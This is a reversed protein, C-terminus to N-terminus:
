PNAKQQKENDCVADQLKNIYNGKEFQSVCNM